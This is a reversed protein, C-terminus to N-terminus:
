STGPGITGLGSRVRDRKEVLDAHIAREKEVVEPAEVRLLHINPVIREREVVKHM